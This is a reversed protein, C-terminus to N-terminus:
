RPPESRHKEDNRVALFVFVSIVLMILAFVKESDGDDGDRTATM